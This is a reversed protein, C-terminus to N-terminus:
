HNPACISRGSPDRTRTGPVMDLTECADIVGDGAELAVASMHVYGGGWCVHM